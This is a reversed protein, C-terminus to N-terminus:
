RKMTTIADMRMIKVLPFLGIVLSLAFVIAAQTLFINLELTTPWIPEFGFKTYAEKLGGSFVLPHKEFYKVVPYSLLLGFITGLTSILITEGTLMLALHMRKMGIAMMMGLEYRRETLMMLITGFLGFAILLYLVGVFIYFDINDARMHNDIDPMINKWTLVEYEKGTSTSIAAASQELFAPSSVNIAITTIKNGASLFDQATALPLFVLGDNLQPSGFHALGSIPYKGAATTGHYGQGLLVITDNVSVGLRMALGESVIAGSKGDSFYTGSTIKNQLSTLLNEEKPQTGVLLCGYTSSGSSALVFSEIRAVGGSVNSVKLISDIFVGSYEFSNDLNQEEWYGYKHVQIYGSYFSVVNKILNDFVGKQMSKMTVALLVAFAVSAMAIFSRRQNRWLNRWILKNIM